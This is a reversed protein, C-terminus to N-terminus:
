RTPSCGAYTPCIATCASSRPSCATRRCRCAWSM